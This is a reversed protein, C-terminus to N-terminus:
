RRRVFFPGGPPGPYPVYIQGPLYRMTRYPRTMVWYLAGFQTQAWWKESQSLTGYDTQMSVTGEAAQSLRGVPTNPVKPTGKKADEFLACLHATVYNLCRTQISAKSVPGGGDNRHITTAVNWYGTVTDQSLADFVPFAAKWASYSFEVIVGM